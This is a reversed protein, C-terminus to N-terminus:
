CIIFDFAEFKEPSKKKFFIAFKSLFLFQMKQLFFANKAWILGFLLSPGLNSAFISLRAEKKKCFFSPLNHFFVCSLAFAFLASVVRFRWTSGLVEYFAFASALGL